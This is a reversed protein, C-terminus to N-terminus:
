AIEKVQKAAETKEARERIIKELWLLPFILLDYASTLVNGLYLVGNGLLRFISALIRLIAAMTIGIVTRSSHIFSEFPVAVFALAFPLIFGMVMQGVMPIWSMTAQSGGQNDALSQILAQRNAMIVDRMFALSSEICAMTLLIGFASVMFWKRKKDEMSGIIPFLRTIRLGEMVYIGTATEILIIVLAAVNSMKFPGLYASGGVMETMPLAILNFNVVAGGLAILLVIASIVFQTLSSSSLMREAQDTKALIEEYRDMKEDVDKSRDLLGKMTKDVSELTQSMSRWYPMMKRLLQHRTGSAKRYEDIATNHYEQVSTNITKLMNSVLKDDAFSIKAVADLAAAWEPPTPPVQTSERYDEDIATILDSMSRHLAPYGQLDKAVVNNIRYFEREIQREYYEAGSALLVERNRLQIREAALMVSRAMLRLANHASHAISRIPNHVWTRALYMAVIAVSIWLLVSLGPNNPWILPFGSVNM